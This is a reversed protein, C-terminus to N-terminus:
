PGPANAIAISPPPAIRGNVADAADTTMEPSVIWFPLSWSSLLIPPPMSTVVPLRLTLSQSSEPFLPAAIQMWFAPAEAVIVSEVIAPFTVAPPEPKPPAINTLRPVTVSVFQVNDPLVAVAPPPAIKLEPEAVRIFQVNESLVAGPTVPPAIELVPVVVRVFQM